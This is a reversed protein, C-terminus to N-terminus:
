GPLPEVLVGLPGDVKRAAYLDPGASRIQDRKLEAVEKPGSWVIGRGNIHIHKALQFCKEPPYGFVKGFVEVVYEFTHVDDNLVVVAHPPLLRPRGHDTRDEPAVAEEPVAVAAHDEATM